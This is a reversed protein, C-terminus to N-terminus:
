QLPVYTEKMVYKCGERIKSWNEGANTADSPPDMKFLIVEMIAAHPCFCDINYDECNCVVIKKEVDVHTEVFAGLLRPVSVFGQEELMQATEAEDANFTKVTTTDFLKLVDDDNCSFDFDFSFLEEIKTLFIEDASLVDGGWKDKNKTADAAKKAALKKKKNMERLRRAGRGDSVARPNRQMRRRCYSRLSEGEHAEHTDLLLQRYVEMKLKIKQEMQMVSLIQRCKEPTNPDSDFLGECFMEQMSGSIMTIHRENSLKRVSSYVTSGTPWFMHFQTHKNECFVARTDLVTLRDSPSTCISYLLDAAINPANHQNKLIQEFKFIGRAYNYDDMNKVPEWAFNEICRCSSDIDAAYAMIGHMVNRFEKPVYNTIIDYQAQINGGRKEMGNTSAVQGPLGACRAGLSSPDENLHVECMHENFIMPYKVKLLRLFENWDPNSIHSGQMSTYM